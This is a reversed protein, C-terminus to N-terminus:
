RINTKDLLKNEVKTIDFFGIDLIGQEIKKDYGSIILIGLIIFILGLIKKFWGHPDALWSLRQVLREGLLAILLLVLSLGLAYAILYVLGVIFSRPLVTALIVFYTPSCTSFIPGLSAGIIIDGLYNKKSYGSALVRNSALSLKGVLSIKDWWHPFTLILGFIIIIGGSLLSWVLAPIFIFGTSWKLVLTFLIVSISLSLTIIYPSLRSRTTGISGGIIVPLLPLVCPALVTLIGALFSIFLLTM